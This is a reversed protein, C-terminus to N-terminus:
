RKILRLATAEIIYELVECTGIIGALFALALPVILATQKETGFILSGVLLSFMGLFALISIPNISKM